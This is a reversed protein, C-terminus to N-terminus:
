ITSHYWLTFLNVLTFRLKYFAKMRVTLKGPSAHLAHHAEYRCWSSEIYHPSLIVVTKRCEKKIMEAIQESYM